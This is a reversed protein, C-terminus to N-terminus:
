SFLENQFDESAPDYRCSAPESAIDDPDVRDVFSRLCALRLECGRCRARIGKRNELFKGFERGGLMTELDSRGLDGVVCHRESPYPYVLGSADVFVAGVSEVYRDLVAATDGGVRLFDRHNKAPVPNRYGVLKGDSSFIRSCIEGNRPEALEYSRRHRKAVRVALSRDSDRGGLFILHRVLHSNQDFDLLASVRKVGNRRAEIILTGVPSVPACRADIRYPRWEAEVSEQLYGRAILSDLLRRAASPLKRLEAAGKLVDAVFLPARALSSKAMNYLALRREGQVVLVNDGLNMRFEVQFPRGWDRPGALAVM